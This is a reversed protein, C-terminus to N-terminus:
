HCQCLFLLLPQLNALVFPNSNRSHLTQISPPNIFQPLLDPTCILKVPLNTFNQSLHAPCMTCIPSSLPAFYRIPQPLLTPPFSTSWPQSPLIQSNLFSTSWRPYFLDHNQIPPSRLHHHVATKFVQFYSHSQLSQPLKSWLNSFLPFSHPSTLPSGINRDHAHRYFLNSLSFLDFGDDM